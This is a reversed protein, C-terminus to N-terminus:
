WWARIWKGSRVASSASEDGLEKLADGGGGPACMASRHGVEEGAAVGVVSERLLVAVRGADLIGSSGGVVVEESGGRRGGAGWEDARHKISRPRVGAARGEIITILVGDSRESVSM